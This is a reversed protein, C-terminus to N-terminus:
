LLVEGFERGLLEPSRFRCEARGLVGQGPTETLYCFFLCMAAKGFSRGPRGLAGQGPTEILHRLKPSDCGSGGLVGQGPTETLNLCKSSASARVGQGPTRSMQVLM